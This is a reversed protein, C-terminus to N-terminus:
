KNKGNCRKSDSCRCESCEEDSEFMSDILVMDAESPNSFYCLNILDFEDEDSECFEVALPRWNNELMAEEIETLVDESANNLTVLETTNEADNAFIIFTEPIDREALVTAMGLYFHAQAFIEEPSTVYENKVEENTEVYQM